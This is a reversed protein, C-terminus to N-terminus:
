ISEKLFFASTPSKELYQVVDDFMELCGKCTQNQIYPVVEAQHQRREASTVATPPLSLSQLVAAATPDGVRCVPVQM